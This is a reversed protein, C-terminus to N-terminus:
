SLHIVVGSNLLNVAFGKSTLNADSFKTVFVSKSVLM